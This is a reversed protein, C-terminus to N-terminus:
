KEIYAEKFDVMGLVSRHVNKVYPQSLYQDTLFFVPCIPMEDMLIKEAEHLEQSRKMKDNEKKAASILADYKKNSWGTQNNGGNTVFMDLFTMPDIYDGYWRARALTYKLDRVTQLYVKWEVNRLEVNVGLNKKWMGQFAEAIIKHLENTDYLYELSGSSFSLPWGKGRESFFVGGNERFDKGDADPIGYPVFAFASKQGGKLVDNVLENRRLAACFARRANQEKFPVRTVNFRVFYTGILPSVSLKNEKKLREIEHFPPNEMYDLQGSEFSSLATTAEEMMTFLIGDLKVKEADWYDPNKEFQMEYRHQWKVLRFPGNGVYTEAKAAWTDPQSEAVAKNMPLLTPFSTLSLFYPTPAELEVMLTRDDPAKVGVKSDKVQGKNFKEGNKLYFLQYAYEAGLKPSLARKWSYEFDHATLKDGNSWKSERLHFTYHLGDPSIEWSEAIGPVPVNDKGLRTLGEFCQLEVKAEVLGTSRASDITEPEAGLNFRLVKPQKKPAGCGALVFIM